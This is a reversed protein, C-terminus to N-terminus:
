PTVVNSQPVGAAEIWSVIRAVNAESDFRARAFRLAASGRVRRAEADSADRIALWLAEPDGPAAVWGGGSERIWRGMSGEPDGVFIVSKGVTFAAQLKSPMISGEWAPDLSALLVDASCLHQGLEEAPQYGLLEIGADPHRDVFAQIDARRKGDGSFVFRVHPGAGAPGGARRQCGAAALFEEFLHGLGMNGAYLLVLEDGWGRARRRDAAAADSVPCLWAPAWLPVWTVSAANAAYRTVRGAMGPSLTLIAASGRLSARTMAALLAHAISGERLMGHAVMADPYLDMIWHVHRAGRLAAAAKVLLGTFPPTTLAVICDPKPGGFALRCGATLFFSAYDLVRGCASRRGFAFAPLRVVQVGAAGPGGAKVCGAYGGQSCLVTVHHGRRALALALDRLVQGTPAPDPPFYQNVFVINM